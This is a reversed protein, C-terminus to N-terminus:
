RPARGRDPDDAGARRAAPAAALSRVTTEYFLEKWSVAISEVDGSVVEKLRLVVADTVGIADLHRDLASIVQDRPARELRLPMILARPLNFHEILPYPDNREALAAIAVEAGRLSEPAGELAALRRLVSEETSM